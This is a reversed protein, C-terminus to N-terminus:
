KTVIAVIDITANVSDNNTFAIILKNGNVVNFAITQKFRNEPSFLYVPVSDHTITEDELQITTTIKKTNAGEEEILVLDLVKLDDSFTYVVKETGGSPVAESAILIYHNKVLQIKYTM